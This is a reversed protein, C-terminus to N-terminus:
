SGKIQSLFESRGLLVDGSPSRERAVLELLLDGFPALLRSRARGLCDGRSEDRSVREDGGVREDIAQDRARVGERRQGFAPSAQGLERVGAIALEDHAAVAEDIADLASDDPNCAHKVAATEQARRGRTSQSVESRYGLAREPFSM